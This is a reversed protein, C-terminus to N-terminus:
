TRVSSSTALVEGNQAGGTGAFRAGERDDQRRDQFTVAFGVHNQEVRVVLVAAREAIEGVDDVGLVQLQREPQEIEFFRGPDQNAAPGVALLFRLRENEVVGNGPRAAVVLAVVTRFRCDRDVRRHRKADVVEDAVEVVLHAPEGLGVRRYRIQSQAPPISDSRM